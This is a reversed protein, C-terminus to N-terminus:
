KTKPCYTYTLIVAAGSVLELAGEIYSGEPAQLIIPESGAAIELEVGRDTKLIADRAGVNKLSMRYVQELTHIPSTTRFTHAGIEARKNQM